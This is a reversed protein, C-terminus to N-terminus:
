SWADTERFDRFSKPDAFRNKALRYRFISLHTRMFSRIHLSGRNMNCIRSYLLETIDYPQLNSHSEAHSFRERAQLFSGWIKIDFPYWKDRVIPEWRFFIPPVNLFRKHLDQM